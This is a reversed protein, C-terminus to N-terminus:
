QQSIASFFFLLHPILPSILVLSVPHLITNVHTHYSLLILHMHSTHLFYYQVMYIIRHPTTHHQIFHWLTSCYPTIHNLSMITSDTVTASSLRSTQDDTGSYSLRDIYIMRSIVDDEVKPCVTKKGLYASYEEELDMVSALEVNDLVIPLPSPSPLSLTLCHDATSAADGGCSNSEERKLLTGNALISDTDCVSTILYDDIWSELLDKNVRGQTQAAAVLSAEVAKRVASSAEIEVSKNLGQHSQLQQSHIGNRPTLKVKFDCLARSPGDFIVKLTACGTSDLPVNEESYSEDDDGGYGGEKEGGIEEEETDRLLYNLDSM